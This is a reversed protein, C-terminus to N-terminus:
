YKIILQDWIRHRVDRNLPTSTVVKLIYFLETIFVDSLILSYSLFELRINHSDSNTEGVCSMVTVRTCTWLILQGKQVKLILLLADFDTICHLIWSIPHFVEFVSNTFFSLHKSIDDKTYCQLNMWKITGAGTLQM